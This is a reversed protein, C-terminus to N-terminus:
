LSRLTCSSELGRSSVSAPYIDIRLTKVLSDAAHEEAAHDTQKARNTSEREYSHRAQHGEGYEHRAFNHLLARRRWPAEVCTLSLSDGDIANMSVASGVLLQVYQASPPWM